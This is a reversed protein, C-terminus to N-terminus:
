NYDLGEECQNVAEELNGEREEYRSAELYVPGNGTNVCAEKFKKRAAEVEGIRGEFLAGEIQIRWHDSKIIKRIADHDNEREMVKICKVLLNENDPCHEL